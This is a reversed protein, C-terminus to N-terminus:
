KKAAPPKQKIEQLWEMYRQRKRPDKVSTRLGAIVKQRKEPPDDLNYQGVGMFSIDEFAKVAAQRVTREDHNMKELVQDLSDWAKMAALAKLAAIIEDVPSTAKTVVDQVPRAAAASGRDATYGYTVIAERRVVASPSTMMRQAAQNAQPGGVSRLAQLAAAKQKDSKGQEAIKALEGADGMTEFRRVDALEPEVDKPTSVGGFILYLGVVLILVGGVGGILMLRKKQAESLVSWM